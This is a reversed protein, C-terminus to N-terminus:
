QQHTSIVTTVHQCRKLSAIGYAVSRNIFTLQFTCDIINNPSGVITLADSRNIFTLQFTCDIINIVITTISIILGM